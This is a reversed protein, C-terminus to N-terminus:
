TSLMLVTGKVEMKWLAYKSFLVTFRLIVRIFCLATDKQWFRLVRNNFVIRRLNQM